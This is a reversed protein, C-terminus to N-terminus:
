GVEDLDRVINLLTNQFVFKRFEASGQLDSLIPAPLHGTLRRVREELALSRNNLEQEMAFSRFPFGCLGSVAMRIQEAKKLVAISILPYDVKDLRTKKIGRHPLFMYEQETIIQVVLEGPSLQMTQQFVEQIGVRREGGPGAIVVESEALLLPLIAERYFIKGCLNGGITIKDRITHDAVRGGSKGLLPFLNSEMIETLTIVSGIILQGEVIELKQCEPIVKIDIVAGTYISNLRAMSIIETGGGYYLPKLGREELSQYLGIAEELTDPRYYEFDFPIM